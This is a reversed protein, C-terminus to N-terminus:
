LRWLPDDAARLSQVDPGAPRAPYSLTRLVTM